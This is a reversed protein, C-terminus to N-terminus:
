PMQIFTSGHNNPLEVVVSHSKALGEARERLVQRPFLCENAFYNAEEEMWDNEKNRQFANLLETEIFLPKGGHLLAHGLCHAAFWRRDPEDM